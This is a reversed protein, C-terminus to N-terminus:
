LNNEAYKQFKIWEKLNHAQLELSKSRISKKNLSKGQKKIIKQGNFFQYEGYKGANLWTTSDISYFPIQPLMKMVTYGLGHVKVGKNKAYVVMSKLLAPKTRTWKSDNRGSAGIAIYKYSECLNKYYEAGLEYHWVPISKTNTKQEIKNRLRETEKLGVVSYIDLEFYNKIQHKNIFEIYNDTYKEWDVAKTKKSMFTFAGSDLIFTNRLLLDIDKEHKKIYAYSELVNFKEKIDKLDNKTTGAIYIKM